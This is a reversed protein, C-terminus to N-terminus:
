QKGEIAALTEPGHTAALRRLKAQDTPTPAGASAASQRSKAAGLTAKAGALEDASLQTAAVYPPTNLNPYTGTDRAGPTLPDDDSVCGSVAAAAALVAGIALRRRMEAGFFM